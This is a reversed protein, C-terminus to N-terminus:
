RDGRIREVLANVGLSGAYAEIYAWDLDPQLRAISGADRIQRESAGQDSWSLKALVLDEPSIFWASGLTPDDVLRRREFASRGWADDRRMMLDAKRVETRHIVSGYGRGDAVILDNVLYADEFAPRVVADYRDAPLDTVIDIDMTQRPEGWISLAESGTIYYGIGARDLRDLVDREINPM